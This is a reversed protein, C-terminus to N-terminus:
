PKIGQGRMARIKRAGYVAAAALLIGSGGDLPLDPDGGPLGPDDTAKVTFVMLLLATLLGYKKM